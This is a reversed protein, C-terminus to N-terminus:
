RQRHDRGTTGQYARLANSKGANNPGVVAGIELLQVDLDRISRFSKIHLRTIRM